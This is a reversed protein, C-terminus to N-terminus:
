PSSMRVIVMVHVASLLMLFRFVKLLYYLQECPYIAMGTVMHFLPFGLKQLLPLKAGSPKKYKKIGKLLISSEPDPPRPILGPRTVANHELALYKGRM